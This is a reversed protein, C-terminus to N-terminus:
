HTGTRLTEKVSFPVRKRTNVFTSFLKCETVPVIPTGLDQFASPVIPHRRIENTSRIPIPIAPVYPNPALECVFSYQRDYATQAYKDMQVYVRNEM